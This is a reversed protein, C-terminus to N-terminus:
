PSDGEQIYSILRSLSTGMYVENSMNRDSDYERKGLFILEKMINTFNVFEPPSPEPLEGQKQVEILFQNSTLLWKTFKLTKAQTLIDHDIKCFLFHRTYETFISLIVESREGLTGLSGAKHLSQTIHLFLIIKFPRKTTNQGELLYWCWTQKQKEKKFTSRLSALSPHLCNDNKM